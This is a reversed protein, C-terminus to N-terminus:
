SHRRTAPDGTASDGNMTAVDGAILEKSNMLRSAHIAIDRMASASDRMLRLEHIRNMFAICADRSMFALSHIALTDCSNMLKVHAVDGVSDRSM